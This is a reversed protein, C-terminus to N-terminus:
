EKNERVIFFCINNSTKITLFTCYIAEKKESSCFLLDTDYIWLVLKQKTKEESM